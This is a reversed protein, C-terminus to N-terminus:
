RAGAAGTDVRELATRLRGWSEEPVWGWGHSRVADSDAARDAAREFTRREAEEGAGGHAEVAAVVAAPDRAARAWGGVAGALLGVLAEPRDAVTDPPAAVVPGPLPFHDALPLACVDHGDADIREPDTAIGTVADVDGDLLAAREEGAVAVLEVDDLVGAQALFVRALLGTESGAPTGVRRGRLQDVATLRGGFAGVTTYLVTTSRQHVLALPVLAAEADQLTAAGTVAADARGAGVAEIAARSGASATFSVDVGHDAYLGDAAAVLLPAHLGNPRWNLAVRLAEPSGEPPSDPVAPEGDDAVALLEAAHRRHVRALPDDGADVLHWEKRPRGPTPEDAAAAGVLGREELTSLGAITQERGLGTGVRIALRTPPPGDGRRRDRALLYAFVRGAHGPLGAEAAAVVDRDEAALVPFSRERM